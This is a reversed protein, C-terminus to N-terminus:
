YEIVVEVAKLKEFLIKLEGTKETVGDFKGPNERIWEELEDIKNYIEEYEELTM